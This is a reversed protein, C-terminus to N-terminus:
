VINQDALTSLLRTKSYYAALCVLHQLLKWIDWGHLKADRALLQDIAHLRHRSDM